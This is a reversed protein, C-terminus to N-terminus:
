QHKHPTTLTALAAELMPDAPKCWGRSTLWSALRTAPIIRAGPMHALGAHISRNPKSPWAAVLTHVNRPQIPLRATYQLHSLIGNRNMLMTKKDVHPVRTFGRRTHGLLTWYWGPQWVKTDLVLVRHGSIILHDINTAYKPDLGPTLIDHVVVVGPYQQAHQNLIQATKHEGDQGIKAVAQNIAWNQSHNLSGGPTGYVHARM